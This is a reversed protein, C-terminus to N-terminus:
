DIDYDILDLISPEVVKMHVPPEILRYINAKEGAVMQAAEEPTDEGGVKAMKLGEDVEVTMYWGPGDWAIVSVKMLLAMRAQGKETLEYFGTEKNWKLLGRTVASEAAEAPVSAQITLIKKTM